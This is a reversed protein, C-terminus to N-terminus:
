LYSGKAFRSGFDGARTILEKRKAHGIKMGGRIDKEKDFARKSPDDEKDRPKTKQHEDYLSSNRNKENYEQIRRETERAEAQSRASKHSDQDLHAPRKVGMVEDELRKLKEEPTETWLTSEGGGKQAPGKAGKGTNFKRNKLKTPDIRSSWDDQKPPVLMWEERKPKSAAQRASEEDAAEKRRLIEAEPDYHGPPPPLAPGIDDDSDSDDVGGPATTPREDLNAPPLSPGLIRQRKEAGENSSSRSRSAPHARAPREEENNDKRKRKAALHPPLEPGVRSM